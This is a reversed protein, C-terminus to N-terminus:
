CRAWHTPPAVRHRRYNRRDNVDGAACSLMYLGKPAKKRIQALSVHACMVGVFGSGLEDTRFDNEAAPHLPAAVMATDDEEVQPIALPEYLDNDIGTLLLGKGQGLLDAGLVHQAHATRQPRARGPTLIGVDGTAGDFQLRHGDLDEITGLGQGKGQVLVADAFVRAGCGAGPAPAAPV